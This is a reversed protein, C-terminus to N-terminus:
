KPVRGLGDLQLISNNISFNFQNIYKKLIIKLYISSYVTIKQKRNIIFENGCLLIM